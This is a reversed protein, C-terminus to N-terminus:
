PDTYPQKTQRNERETALSSLSIHCLNSDRMQTEAGILSWLSKLLTHYTLLKIRAGQPGACCIMLNVNGSDPSMPTQYIVEFWQLKHLDCKVTDRTLVNMLLLVIMQVAPMDILFFYM